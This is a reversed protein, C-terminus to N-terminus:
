RGYIGSWNISVEHARLGITWIERIHLCDQSGGPLSKMRRQVAGSNQTCEMRPVVAASVVFACPWAVSWGACVINRPKTGSQAVGLNVSSPPCNDFSFRQYYTYHPEAFISHGASGRRKSHEPPSSAASKAPGVTRCPTVLKQAKGSRSRGSWIVGEGEELAAPPASHHSTTLRVASHACVDM